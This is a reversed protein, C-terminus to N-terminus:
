SSKGCEEFGIRAAIRDAEADTKQGETALAQVKQQDKDRAAKELDRVLDTNQQLLDAYRKADAKIEDPAELDRFRRIGDDSATAAQGALKALSDFDSPSGLKDITNQVDKCIVDGQKIFEAKTLAKGGGCGAAVLAIAGLLATTTFLKSPHM